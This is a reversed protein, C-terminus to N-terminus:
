IIFQKMIACNYRLLFPFSTDPAQVYRGDVDTLLDIIIWFTCLYCQGSYQSLSFWFYWTQFSCSFNISNRIEFWYFLVASFNARTSVETIQSRSSYNQPPAFLENWKRNRHVLRSAITTHDEQRSAFGRLTTRPCLIGHHYLLM